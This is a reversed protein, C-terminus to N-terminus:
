WLTIKWVGDIKTLQYLIIRQEPNGKNYMYATVRNSDLFEIEDLKANSRSPVVVFRFYDELSELEINAQKLVPKENIENLKEDSSMTEIYIDDLYPKWQIFSRRSIVSNLDKILAEIDFFAAEYEEQSVEIQQASGNEEQDDPDNISILPDNEPGPPNTPCGFVLALALLPLFNRANM